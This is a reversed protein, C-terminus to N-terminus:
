CGTWRWTGNTFLGPHNGGTAPGAGGFVVVGLDHETAMMHGAVRDPGTSGDAITSWVGTHGPPHGPNATSEEHAIYSPTWMWTPIDSVRYDISGGVMVVSSGNVGQKACRTAAHCWRGRPRPWDNQQKWVPAGGNRFLLWTDSYYDEDATVAGGFLMCDAPGVFSEIGAPIGPNSVRATPVTANLGCAVVHGWRKSPSPSSLSQLRQTSPVTSTLQRWRLNEFVWTDMKATLPNTFLDDRGGFLIGSAGGLYNTFTFYARPSPSV